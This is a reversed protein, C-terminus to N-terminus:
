KQKRKEKETTPNESETKKLEESIDGLESIM